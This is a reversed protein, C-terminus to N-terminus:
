KGEQLEGAGKAVTKKLRIKIIFNKCDEYCCAEFPTIRTKNGEWHM